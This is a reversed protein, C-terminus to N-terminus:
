QWARVRSTCQRRPGGPLSHCLGHQFSVQRAQGESGALLTLMNDPAKSKRLSGRTSGNGQRWVRCCAWLSCCGPKACMRFYTGSRVTRTINEDSSDLDSSDQDSINADEDQSPRVPLTPRNLAPLVEGGPGDTGGAVELSKCLCTIPRPHVSREYELRTAIGCRPTVAACAASRCPGVLDIRM